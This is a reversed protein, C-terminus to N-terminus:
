VVTYRLTTTIGIGGVLHDINSALFSNERQFNQLPFLRNVAVKM